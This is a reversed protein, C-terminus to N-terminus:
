VQISSHPERQTHKERLPGRTGAPVRGERRGRPCSPSAVFCLEPPILRSSSFAHRCTSIHAPGRHPRRRPSARCDPM